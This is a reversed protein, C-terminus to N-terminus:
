LGKLGRVISVSHGLHSEFQMGGRAFVSFELFFVSDPGTRFWYSGIRLGLHASDKEAVGSPGLKVVLHGEPASNLNNREM